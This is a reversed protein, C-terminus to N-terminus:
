PLKDDAVEEGPHYKRVTHAAVDEPYFWATKFKRQSFLSAQDFYHPSRPDGSQGYQLVTAGRVKDGFEIVGIYSSGVVGYRRPRVLPIAPTSYVTFVIGLPGPTGDCPLSPRLDNFALAASLVDPKEPVRQMRHVEGWPKRWSGYTQELSRATEVLARFKREPHDVFEKKLTEAPYGEGYLAFYWHVCLTTQTSDAAARCDWDRLHSWYPEVERALAPDADRLTEFQRQLEPFEALPWNLTTDYALEQVREFTLDSAEGLLKRSMKARRKDDESDEVMYPPFRERSPNDGHTTAFPTSNCNQVYGEKPNFLQPLEDFTHLGRWETNPNSGDVVEKWDFKPDRVPVAGNYVYFINGERDAYATNFMPLGILRASARWEEFNRAKLMGLGQRLRSGEFLNAIRVAVYHQSDRRVVLPGHHSKRFTFRREELGNNGRVRITEHWETATRYGGAYRYRLPHAPDDFTVEFADAVDPENVAYTWGLHENFGMAPLPSGFFCAGSFDIGEGSTVHAEYYQGFGYWPQHPNLFLMAKKSRTKSPGIAWQNSGAARRATEEFSQPKPRSVHAQRYLFDLLVQREYALVHWPEFREILRPKL